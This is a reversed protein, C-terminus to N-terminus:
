FRYSIGIHAQPFVKFKRATKDLRQRQAELEEVATTANAKAAADLKDQLGKSAVLSASPKGFSVGLDLVIGFGSTQADNYGWGIGLYPAMSPFKVRGTLTDDPDFGVRTNNIVIVGNNQPRGQAQAQLKRLHLGGSFRFGTGFPFWDGYVGFQNSDLSARYDIAGSSFNREFKKMSTFDTRLSLNDTLGYFVGIGSGLFGTKTYFGLAHAPAAVSCSVISLCVALRKMTIVWDKICFFM